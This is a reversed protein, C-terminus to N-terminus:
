GWQPTPQTPKPKNGTSVHVAHFGPKTSLQDLLSELHEKDTHWHQVSDPKQSVEALALKLKDPTESDADNGKNSTPQGIRGTTKSIFCPAAGGLAGGALSALALQSGLIGATQAPAAATSTGHLAAAALRVTPTAAAWSPPVSVAGITGANGMGASITSGTSALGALSASGVAQTTGLGAALASGGGAAAGAGASTLGKLGAGSAVFSLILTIMVDNAPLILKPILEVDASISNLTQMGAFSQAASLLGQLPNPSTLITSFSQLATPVASFLQSFQQQASSGVSSAGTELIALLQGLLGGPNTTQPPLAFPTVATAAASQSAYTNMAAADQAWMEAYQAETAAISPTNQGFINTAILSALQSRNGAIVPPPVTAAFATEYAAAAAKAQMATQAAQAATANMWGVYPAAAAAMAASSPGQWSATLGSIVSGYSAATSPLEAALGDWAAAASVMSGSGPGAYMRGSNVEPPFIGFYM